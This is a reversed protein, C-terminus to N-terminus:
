PPAYWRASREKMRLRPMVASSGYSTSFRKSSKWTMTSFISAAIIGWLGTDNHAHELVHGEGDPYRLDRGRGENM